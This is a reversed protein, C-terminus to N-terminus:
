RRCPRSRRRDLRSRPPPATPSRGTRVTAWSGSAGRLGSSASARPPLPSRGRSRRSRGGSATDVFPYGLQFYLRKRVNAHAVVVASKGFHENGGTHDGHHHTNVLFRPASREKSPALKALAAEIDKALREFQDDVILVGDPGASVGINGGEGFLVSVKGAVSEARVKAEQDLGSALGLALVATFFPVLAIRAPTM